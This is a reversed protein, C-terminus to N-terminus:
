LADRLAFFIVGLVTGLVAFGAGMVILVIAIFRRATLSAPLDFREPDAPDYLVTVRDGERAAPPRSSTRSEAEVTRGDPLSFRVYPAWTLRRGADRSEVLGTVVGVARLMGSEFRSVSRLGHIGGAVAAIGIVVFAWPLLVV